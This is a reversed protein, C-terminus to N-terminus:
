FVEIEIDNFRLITHYPTSLNTMLGLLIELLSQAKM